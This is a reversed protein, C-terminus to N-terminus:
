LYEKEGAVRFVEGDEARAEAGRGKGCTRAVKGSFSSNTRAMFVVAFPVLVMALGAKIDHGLSVALCRILLDRAGCSRALYGPNVTTALVVPTDMSTCGSSRASPISPSETTPLPSKGHRACHPHVHDCHESYQSNILLKGVDHKSSLYSSAGMLRTTGVVYFAYAMRM